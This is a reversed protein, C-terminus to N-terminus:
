ALSLSSSCVTGLWMVDKPGASRAQALLDEYVPPEFLDGGVSALKDYEHRQVGLGEAARGLSAPRDHGSFVHWLRPQPANEEQEPVSASACTTDSPAEERPELISDQFRM